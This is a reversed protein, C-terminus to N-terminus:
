IRVKKGNRKKRIWKDNKKCRMKKKFMLIQRYQFGNMVAEEFIEM